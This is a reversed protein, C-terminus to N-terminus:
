FVFVSYLAASVEPVHFHAIPGTSVSMFCSLAPCDFSLIHYFHPVREGGSSSTEPIVEKRDTESYSLGRQKDEEGLKKDGKSRSLVLPITHTDVLYSRM